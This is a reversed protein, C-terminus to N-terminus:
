GPTGLYHVILAVERPLYSHRRRQWGVGELAAVLLTNTKVWRNLKKVASDMGLMPFYLLALELKTYERVKFKPEEFDEYEM